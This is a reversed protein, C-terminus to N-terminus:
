SIATENYDFLRMVAKASEDMSYPLVPRYDIQPDNLLELIKEAMEKKDHVLYWHNIWAAMPKFFSIVRAGAYLAELCVTSFGEYSSTHLFIRSRQMLQLIEPHSKKGPLLINKGLHLKNILSQLNNKEPGEGCIIANLRPLEKTLEGVVEIFIEYQKLAILSGAGLIEIDRKLVAPGYLSVDIGNPIIHAPQISHNKRFEKALFDSMAVLDDPAPRLWRVYRNNKKADQGLIWTHHKLGHRNAFYKGILACESSWFSFLGVINNDRNLLKLKKWVRIWTLIRNFRAKDRGDFPIIDIDYWSYTTQSFPYQFALVIIKLSPFNNKLSRVFSQQAPLCTTDAENKPFGPSLIVLTKRNDRM